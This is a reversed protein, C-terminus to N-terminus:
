RLTPIRRYSEINLTKALEAHMDFSVRHLGRTVGGDGWGRPHITIRVLCLATFRRGPNTLIDYWGDAKGLSSAM